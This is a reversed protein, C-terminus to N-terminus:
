PHETRLKDLDARLTRCAQEAKDKEDMLRGREEGNRPLNFGNLWNSVAAYYITLAYHYENLVRLEERTPKWVPVALRLIRRV